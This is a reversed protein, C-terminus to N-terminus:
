RGEDGSEADLELGNRSTLAHGSELELIAVELLIPAPCVEDM